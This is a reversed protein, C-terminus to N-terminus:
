IILKYPNKKEKLVSIAEIIRPFLLMFTLPKVCYKKKEKTFDHLLHM